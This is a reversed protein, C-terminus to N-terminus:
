TLNRKRQKDEQYSEGVISLMVFGCVIVGLGPVGFVAILIYGYSFGIIALVTGCCVTTISIALLIFLHANMVKKREKDKRLV